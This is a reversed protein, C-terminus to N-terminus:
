NWTTVTKVSVCTKRIISNRFLTFFVTNDCMQMKTNTQLSIEQMGSLLIVFHEFHMKKVIGAITSKVLLPFSLPFFFPLYIFAQRTIEKEPYNCKGYRGRWLCKCHTRGEMAEISKYSQLTFALGQCLWLSNQSWEKLVFGGTHQILAFLWLVPRNFQIQLQQESSCGHLSGFQVASHLM